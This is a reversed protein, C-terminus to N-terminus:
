HTARGYCAVFQVAIVMRYGGRSIQEPNKKEGFHCCLINPTAHSSDNSSDTGPGHGEKLSLCLLWTVGTHKRAKELM